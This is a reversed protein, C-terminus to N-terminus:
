YDLDAASYQNWKLHVTRDQQDQHAEDHEQADLEHVLKRAHREEADDAGDDGDKDPDEDVHAAVLFGRLNIGTQRFYYILLPLPDPPPRHYHLSM